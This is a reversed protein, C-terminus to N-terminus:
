PLKQLYNDLPDTPSKEGSPAPSNGYQVYQQGSPNTPIVGFFALKALHRLHIPAGKFGKGYLRWIWLFPFVKKDWSMGFGIKKDLNTVAYWSDELNGLCLEDISNEDNILTPSKSFDIIEKNFGSIKPRRQRRDLL